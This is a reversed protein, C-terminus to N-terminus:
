PVGDVLLTQVAIENRNESGGVWTVVNGYANLSDRGQVVHTAGMELPEYAGNGDEDKLLVVNSVGGFTGQYVFYRRDTVTDVAAPLFNGAVGNPVPVQSTTIPSSNISATVISNKTPRQAIGSRSCSDGWVTSM